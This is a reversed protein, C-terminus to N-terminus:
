ENEGRINQYLDVFNKINMQEARTNLGLNFKQLVRKTKEKSYEIQLSNTLKKRKQSFALHVFRSFLPDQFIEEKKKPIMEVTASFVKPRPRFADSGIKQKLKTHYCNQVIVSLAGFNRTGPRACLRKAVEYQVMFYMVKVKDVWSLLNMIIATAQNYPLNGVITPKLTAVESFIQIQEWSLYKGDAQIIRVTPSHYKKTLYECYYNDKEIAIFYNSKPILYKSIAGKGPGIEVLWDLSSVDCIDQVLNEVVQSDILFIQGFKHQQEQSPLNM